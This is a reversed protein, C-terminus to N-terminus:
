REKKDLKARERRQKQREVAAARGILYCATCCYKKNGHTADFTTACSPCVKGLCVEGKERKREAALTELQRTHRVQRCVAGCVVQRRSQYEFSKGCEACKKFGAM